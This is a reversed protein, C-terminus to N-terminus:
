RDLRFVDTKLLAGSSRKLPLRLARGVGSPTCRYKLIEEFHSGRLPSTTPPLPPDVLDSSSSTLILSLIIIGIICFRRDPLIFSGIVSPQRSKRDTQFVHRRQRPMSRWDVSKITFWSLRALQSILLRDALLYAAVVTKARTVKVPKAAILIDPPMRLLWKVVNKQFRTQRFNM